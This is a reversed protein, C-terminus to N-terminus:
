NYFILWNYKAETSYCIASQSCQCSRLARWDLHLPNISQGSCSFSCKITYLEEIFMTSMHVHCSCIHRDEVYSFLLKNCLGFRGQYIACMMTCKYQPAEISCHVDQIHSLVFFFQYCKLQCQRSFSIHFKLFATNVTIFDSLTVCVEFIVNMDKLIQWDMEMLKKDTINRHSSAQFFVNPAKLTNSFLIICTILPNGWRNPHGWDTLQIILPTGIHSSMVFFNLSMFSPPSAMMM